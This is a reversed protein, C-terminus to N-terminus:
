ILSLTTNKITGGTYRARITLTNAVENLFFTIGAAPITLNDAATPVSNPAGLFTRGTSKMRGASYVGFGTAPAQGYIGYCVGSSAAAHGWIAKGTTSSVLAHLGVANAGTSTNQADVGFGTAAATLGKLGAAPGTAQIGTGITTSMVTSATATNSAVGLTLPDGNAAAVPQAQGVVMAAAGGAAAAILGRRTLSRPAEAREARLHEVEASLHELRAELQRMRDSSDALPATTDM